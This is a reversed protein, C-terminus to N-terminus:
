KKCKYTGRAVQSSPHLREIKASYQEDAITMLFVLM